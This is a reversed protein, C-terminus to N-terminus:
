HFTPSVCVVNNSSSTACDTYRDSTRVRTPALSSIKEEGYEALGARSGMWGGGPCISSSNGQPLAAVTQRQNRVGM